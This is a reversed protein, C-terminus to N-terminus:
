YMFDVAPCIMLEALDCLSYSGPMCILIWSHQSTRKSIQLGSGFGVQFFVLWMEERHTNDINEFSRRSPKTYYFLHLEKIIRDKEGLQFSADTFLM